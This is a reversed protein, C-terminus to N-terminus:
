GMCFLFEISKPSDVDVIGLAADFDEEKFLNDETYPTHGAPKGLDPV